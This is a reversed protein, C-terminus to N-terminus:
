NVDNSPNFAKSAKLGDKKNILSISFSPNRSFRWRDMRRFSMIISKPFFAKSGAQPIVYPHIEPFVGEIWGVSFIEDM